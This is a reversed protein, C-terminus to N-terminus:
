AVIILRAHKLFSFFIKEVKFFLMAKKSFDNSVPKQIPSLFYCKTAKKGM